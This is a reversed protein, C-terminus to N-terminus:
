DYDQSLPNGYKEEIEASNELTKDKPNLSWNLDKTWPLFTPKSILKNSSINVGEGQNVLARRKQGSAVWVSGKNVCMFIDDISKKGYSVFFQTGRVAMSAFKTKVNLKGKVKPNKKFFTSGKILSILTSNSSIQLLSIEIQSNQNIKLTTGTSFKLLVLSSSSTKIRDGQHITDSKVLPKNNLTVKGKLLLVQGNAM